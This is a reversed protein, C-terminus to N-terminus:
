IKLIQIQHKVMSPLRPCGHRQMLRGHNINLSAAMTECDNVMLMSPTIAMM